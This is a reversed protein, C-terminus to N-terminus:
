MLSAVWYLAHFIVCLVCVFWIVLTHYLRVDNIMCVSVVVSGSCWQHTSYYELNNGEAADIATDWSLSLNLVVTLSLSPKKMLKITNQVLMSRPTARHKSCGRLQCTSCWHLAMYSSLVLQHWRTDWFPNNWVQQQYSSWVLFLTSSLAWPSLVLERSHTTHVSCNSLLPM